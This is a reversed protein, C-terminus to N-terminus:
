RRTILVLWAIVFYFLFLPYVALARRNALHSSSFFNVPAYSSWGFALIVLPLRIVINSVFLFILAAIVLPFICYGLVCVSQFFSVNGGLLKANVTVVAAGCWVIVFVGTFVYGEQENETNICLINCDKLVDRRAKPHLVQQLKLAINRLDRLITESVPEDLTNSGFLPRGTGISANGGSGGSRSTSGINGSVVPPSTINISTSNSSVSSMKPGPLSDSNSQVNKHSSDMPSSLDVFEAELPQMIDSTLPDAFPDSLGGGGGAGSSSATSLTTAGHEHSNDLDGGIEFPNVYTDTQHALPTSSNNNNHASM